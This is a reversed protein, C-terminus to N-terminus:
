FSTIFWDVGDSTFEWAGFNTNLVKNTSVAEIKETGYRLITINFSSASGTIDKVRFSLGAAPEPLQLSRAATTDVLITTNKVVTHPFTSPRVVTFNQMTSVENLTNGLVRRFDTPWEWVYGSGKPTIKKPKFDLKSIEYVNYAGLTKDDFFRFPKSYGGWDKFFARCQDYITQTLHRFVLTRKLELHEIIVQRTGNVSVSVREKPEITEDDPEVPPFDFIIENYAEFSVLSATATANKDLTISNSTKSIIKAGTPVGAGTLYQGVVAQSTDTIGTLVPSLNTTSGTYSFIRYQIKPIAHAM